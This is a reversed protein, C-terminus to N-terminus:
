IKSLLVTLLTVPILCETGLSQNMMKTYVSLYLKIRTKNDLSAEESDEVFVEELSDEVFAEESFDEVSAEESFDEASALVAEEFVM